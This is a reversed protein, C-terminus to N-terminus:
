NNRVKRSHSSSHTKAPGTTSMELLICIQTVQWADSPGKIEKFTRRWTNQSAYFELRRIDITSREGRRVTTQAHWITLWCMWSSSQFLVPVKNPTSVSLRTKPIRQRRLSRRRAAPDCAQASAAPEGDAELSRDSGAHLSQPHVKLLEKPRSLSNRLKYDAIKM